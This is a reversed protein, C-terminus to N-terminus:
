HPEPCIRSRSLGYVLPVLLMALLLHLLLYFTLYSIELM